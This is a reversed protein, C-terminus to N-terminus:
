KLYDSFQEFIKTYTDRKFEIINEMLESSKMWKWNSFEVEENNDFKIESGDGKYRFLFWKQAQGRYKERFPTYEDFEYALWDPHEELLELNEKLIATEEEVERYAGDLPKELSELGGQPMQWAGKNNIRECSFILGEQNIIVAGVGARFTSTM